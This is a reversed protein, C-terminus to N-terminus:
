AKVKVIKGTITSDEESYFADTLTRRRTSNWLPTYQIRRCKKRVKRGVHLGMLEKIKIHYQAIFSENRKTEDQRILSSFKYAEEKDIKPFKCGACCKYMRVTACTENDGVYLICFEAPQGDTTIYKHRRSKNLVKAVITCKKGPETNLASKVSPDGNDVDESTDSDDDSPVSRKPDIDSDGSESDTDLLFLDFDDSGGGSDADSVQVSKSKRRRHAM